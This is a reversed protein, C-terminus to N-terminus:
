VIPETPIEVFPLTCDIEVEIPKRFSRKGESNVARCFLLTFFTAPETSKMQVKFVHEIKTDETEAVVVETLEPLDNQFTCNSMLLSLTVSCEGIANPSVTVHVEGEETSNLQISPEQT